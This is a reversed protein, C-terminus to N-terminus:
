VEVEEEKFAKNLPKCVKENYEHAAKDREHKSSYLHWTELQSPALTFGYKGEIVAILATRLKEERMDPMEATTYTRGNHCFRYFPGDHVIIQQKTKM